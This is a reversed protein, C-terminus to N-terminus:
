TINKVNNSRLICHVDMNKYTRIEQKINGYEDVLTCFVKDGIVSGIGRAHTEKKSFLDKTYDWFQCYGESDSVGIFTLGGLQLRIQTLHLKEEACRKKLYQWSSMGEISQETEFITEGNSLSAIWGRFPQNKGTAEM